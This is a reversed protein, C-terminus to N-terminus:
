KFRKRDKQTTRIPDRTPYSFSNKIHSCKWLKGNNKGYLYNGKLYSVSWKFFNQNDLWKLIQEIYDEMHLESLSTSASYPRFQNINLLPQKFNSVTKILTGQASKM